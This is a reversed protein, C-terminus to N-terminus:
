KTRTAEVWACPTGRARRSSLAQAEVLGLTARTARAEVVLDASTMPIGHLQRGFGWPAPKAAHEM